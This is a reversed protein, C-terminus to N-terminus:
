SDTETQITRAHDQEFFVDDYFKCVSVCMRADADIWGYASM